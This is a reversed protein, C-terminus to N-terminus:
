AKVEETTVAGTALGVVDEESAGAPLEGAVAGDRMVVIRDSMGLLEPLESSIMLVAAGDRALKRVLDHIASKAGVDIGRTPEDFLLIKPGLALWRALVVKQQNGGSLFRIEQDEGAAHVEVATLLERVNATRDARGGMSFLGSPFVARGALLANDLVSQGGVIGEAKRDETVYAIGARIAARPSRLQVPAGDLEVTGGTFPDAGFIARALASRGSGQLGGIGLIEGARLRVDVGRLKHNTGSHVALRVAGLDDPAARPPFYGALERGVMHKVLQDGTTDKTALTTVRRGDKLVTIRDSLDFVEALRHSVYLLGIGREQLRRVLAYLLEVEHDALAATPEDMILLRADLALAKVIEVVQQQAVGLRGVKVGPDFSTEGATALLAATREHMAKRDVLGRRVPEHGLFVNEAVTREPLLNFEQHIIGIGAAQADRPGRFHVARGDLEVAGGDPTYVGSIIKMLTSKGAGNEGVVAHVEGARVDIDVDALVRVGLFSKGIGRLQLLPAAPTEPTEPM